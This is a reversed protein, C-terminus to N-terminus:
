RESMAKIVEQDRAFIYCALPKGTKLGRTFSIVDDLKSFRAAPLLPGFLEDQMIAQDRFNALDTGFDFVSPEIYKQSADVGGGIVLASRSKEVLGSLREFGKSNIIRGYWETSGM